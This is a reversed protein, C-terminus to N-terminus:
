MVRTSSIAEAIAPGMTSTCNPGAPTCHHERGSSSAIASLEARVPRRMWM